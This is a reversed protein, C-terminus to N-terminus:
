MIQALTLVDELFERVNNTSPVIRSNTASQRKLDIEWVMVAETAQLVELLDESLEVDDVLEHTEKQEQHVLVSQKTTLREVIQQQIAADIEVM